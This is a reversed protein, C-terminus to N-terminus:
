TPFLPMPVEVEFCHTYLEYDLFNLAYLIKKKVGYRSRKLVSGDFLRVRQWDCDQAETGKLLSAYTFHIRQSRHFDLKEFIKLSLLVLCQMKRLEQFM